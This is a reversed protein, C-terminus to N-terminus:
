EASQEYVVKGDVVTMLVKAQHIAYTDMDFLNDSLVVFDAQKGAELSGIQEELRLQYAADLTYARIAQELTIRESVPPQVKFDPDGAPQRTMAMEINVLPNLGDLGIWSAPYDTGLTIRGGGAVISRLPYFKQLREKGLFEEAIDDYVYWSPTSQAIVDLKGFRQVDAPDVIQLHCLTIRVDADPLETRVQEAIDLGMRVAADGLTHLHLDVGAEAAAMIVSEAKDASVLSDGRHGPPNLYPELLYASKAEVTGDLSVKLMRLDFFESHFRENLGDLTALASDLKADTNTYLSGVIRVPLRDEAVLEEMLAFTAEGGDVMGADFAATIGMSSMTGLFANAGRALNAANVVGLKESIWNFAGGEILWGTPQGDEYRKYYHRGPVPDESDANLGVAEMAKTNIWATHFGEDFLMVPRDPVVADLMKATPGQEGFVAGLFGYGVLPNQQPNAKAYEAVAALVEDPGMDPSLTVSFVWPFTDGVHIHTDIFGPLVLKGELDVTETGADVQALADSDSGVFTLTDGDLVMAEAWPQAEDQTYIRGNYLLKDAASSYLPLALLAAALLAPWSASRLPRRPADNGRRSQTDNM